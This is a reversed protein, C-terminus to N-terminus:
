FRDFAQLAEEALSTKHTLEMAADAVRRRAAALSAYTRNGTINKKAGADAYYGWVVLWGTRVPHVEVYRSFDKWIFGPEDIRDTVPHGAIECLRILTSGPNAVQVTAM